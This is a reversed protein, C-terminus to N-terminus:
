WHRQLAPYVPSPAAHMSRSDGTKAMGKECNDKEHSTPKGVAVLLQARGVAVSELPDARVYVHVWVEGVVNEIPVVVTRQVAVSGEPLAAVAMM